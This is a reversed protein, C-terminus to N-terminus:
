DNEKEETIKGDSIRYVRDCLPLVGERHTMVLITKGKCYEMMGSLVKRETETDLASTAEDLLLIPADRLIARAISLRQLQGESLGLGREGLETELRNPLASVFDYASAAKLADLLKEDDADPSFSRLMEAITGSFVAKEQPVYTFFPRTAPSVAVKGASTELSITGEQPTVLGLLLRLFTTKGGGSPGVFGVIEGPKVFVDVNELVPRANKYHFSLDRVALVPAKDAHLITEDETSLVTEEHPLDLVAIIRGAAVTTGIISPVSSILASASSSLAGAMQIFLVMTGFDIAGNWLRYVCWGICLYSVLLGMLSMLSTVKVSLANYELSTDYYSKQLLLLKENLGDALDFAKATQINQLSEEFFSLIKGYAERIKNGFRRMTRVLFLGAVATAPISILALLAMTPDYYLIIALAGFFQVARVTVTPIWSIVSDSVTSVDGNIRNLLEGSHYAAMDEWGTRIFRNFVDARIENNVKLSVKAGLRKSVASVLIGSLGCFVYLAIMWPVFVGGIIQNVLTRTILSAGLSLATALIGIVIYLFIWKRYGSAYSYLWKTEKGIERFTGDRFRDRIQKWM